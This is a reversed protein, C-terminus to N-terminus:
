GREGLKVLLDEISAGPRRLLAAVEAGMESPFRGRTCTEFKKLLDAEHVPNLKMGKHHQVVGSKETGDRGTVRVTVPQDFPQARVAPVEATLHPPVVVEIRDMLAAVEPRRVAADTFTELGPAGDLLASAVCYQLCTKGQLGTTPRSHILTRPYMFSVECVIREIDAPDIAGTERVELAAEIPAVTPRGTPFLKFIPGTDVIFFPKGWNELGAELGAPPWDRSLAHGVSMEGDFVDPAATFGGAALRAAKLGAAASLGSHYSMTMTGFNRRLGGLMSAAIGFARCTTEIDSGLLVSTAAASAFAGQTATAHWGIEYQSPNFIPGLRVEMEFGIVFARLMDELSAGREEAVALVAPLLPGSPHGRMETQNDDFLLLSVMMGNIEAAEHPRIRRRQGLVSAKGGDGEFLGSLIGIPEMDAAAYAVALSDIVCMRAKDLEAEGVAPPLDRVCLEAIRQTIGM